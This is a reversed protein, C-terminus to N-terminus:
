ESAEKIRQLSLLAASGIKNMSELTVTPHDEPESLLLFACTFYLMPRYLYGVCIVLSSRPTRVM